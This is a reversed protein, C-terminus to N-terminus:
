LDFQTLNFKEIIKLLKQAYLPDTAYWLGKLGYAQRLLPRDMNQIAIRREKPNLVNDDNTTLRWRWLVRYRWTQMTRTRYALCQELSEFQIFPCKFSGCDDKAMYVDYKWTHYHRHKYGFYNNAETSLKSKWFNSELAMQALTISALIWTEDQMKRAAAAYTSFFKEPWLAKEKHKSMDSWTNSTRLNFLSSKSEYVHIRFSADRKFIELFEEFSIEEDMFDAVFWIFKWLSIDNRTISALEKRSVTDQREIKQTIKNIEAFLDEKRHIASNPVLAHEQRIEKVYQLTSSQKWYEPFFIPIWAERLRQQLIIHYQIIYLWQEADPMRIENKPKKNFIKPYKKWLLLKDIHTICLPDSVIYEELVKVISPIKDYAEHDQPDSSLKLIDLAVWESIWDLRRDNSYKPNDVSQIGDVQDRFIWKKDHGEQSMLYKLLTNLPSWPNKAIDNKLSDFWEDYYSHYPADIFKDLPWWELATEIIYTRILIPSFKNSMFENWWLVVKSWESLSAYVRQLKELSVEDFFIDSWLSWWRDWQYNTTMFEHLLHVRNEQTDEMWSTKCLESLIKNYSWSLKTKNALFVICASLDLNVILENNNQRIPLVRQTENWDVEGHRYSVLQDNIKLSKETYNIWSIEKVSGLWLDEILTDGLETEYYKSTFKNWDRHDICQKMLFFSAIATASLKLFQWRGNRNRPTLKVEDEPWSERM